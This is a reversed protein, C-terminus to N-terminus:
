IRSIGNKRTIKFWAACSIILFVPEGLSYTKILVPKGSVTCVPLREGSGCSSYQVLYRTYQAFYTYFIISYFFILFNIGSCKFISFFLISILDEFDVYYQIILKLFASSAFIRYSKYPSFSSVEIWKIVNCEYHVSFSNTM